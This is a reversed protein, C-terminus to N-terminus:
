LLHHLDLHSERPGVLYSSGSSSTESLPNRLVLGGLPAPRCDVFSKSINPVGADFHHTAGAALWGGVVMCVTTEDADPLRSSRSPCEHAMLFLSAAQRSHRTEEVVIATSDALSEKWPPGACGRAMPPTSRGTPAPLGTERGGGFVRGATAGGSCIGGCPAGEFGDAMTVFQHKALHRNRHSGRGGHRYALPWQADHGPASYPAQTIPVAQTSVRHASQICCGSSCARCHKNM